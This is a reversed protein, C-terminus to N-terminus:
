GASPVISIASDGAIAELVSAVKASPVLVDVTTSRADSILGGSDHTAVITAEGVLVAPPGFHSSDTAPAAWLDVVSGEVVSAPLRDVSVVVTSHGAESARGVVSTPVLEGPLVSRTAVFGGDPLDDVALYQAGASGLRVSRVVLDSDDIRQGVSLTGRAAYVQTTDDVTAVIACVGIVSGAVLLVGVIFRPDIWFSRPARAGSPRTTM